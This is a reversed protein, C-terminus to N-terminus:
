ALRKAGLLRELLELATEGESAPPVGGPPIGGTHHPHITELRTVVRLARRYQARQLRHRYLRTAIVDACGLTEALLVLSTATNVQWRGGRQVALDYAALIHLAQHVTSRAMGTTAVLDFSTLPTKAQELAEYVFAAPLGLDRFAPRLAHIKGAKWDQRSARDAVQDPIRLEYLDGRLGRDDQILVILPDDETRLRRLHQAVTSHDIGAALDLSRTGFEVYRSGTMMGAEGLARLLMRVAPASRGTYRAPELLALATWWQRLFRFEAATSRDHETRLTGPLRRHTPPKSTHIKRVHSVDTDNAQQRRIWGVASTWDRLVAKRRHGPRYRAYFAALGPWAGGELRSLLQALTLGAHAAAAIVAQRAESPTPYRATDYLGTTAIRLYDARVERPGGRRPLFEVGGAVDQGEADQSDAGHAARDAVTRAARVAAIELRLDDQLGAWVSAPNRQTAIGYAATLSGRLRQYGGTKHVSGPPRILGDSLGLMPQPDMTPTRAALALALDRADHFPVAAVLPLYLHIGGSPSQDTIVRGGARAILATIAAADREVAARDARATDLDVVLLRTDGSGSYVPIAAPVAPLRDTLPRRGRAPYSRGGNSSERVLPRGALM